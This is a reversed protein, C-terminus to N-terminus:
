ERMKRGGVESKKRGYREWEPPQVSQNSGTKRRGPRHSKLGELNGFGRLNPVLLRGPPGVDEEIRTPSMKLHATQFGRWGTSHATSFVRTGDRFGSPCVPYHIKTPPRGPTPSDKRWCNEQTGDHNHLVKGYSKLGELNELGQLNPSGYLNDMPIEIVKTASQKEEIAAQKLQRNLIFRPLDPELWMDEEHPQLGTNAHANKNRQNFGVAISGPYHSKVGASLWAPERAKNRSKLGELNGFGRLNPVLL